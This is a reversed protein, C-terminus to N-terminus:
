IPSLPNHTHTHTNRLIHAPIDICNCIPANQTCTKKHTNSRKCSHYGIQTQKHWGPERQCHVSHDYAQTYTTRETHTHTHGTYVPAVLTAAPCEGSGSLGVFLSQQTEAVKPCWLLSGASGDSCLPSFTFPIYFVM